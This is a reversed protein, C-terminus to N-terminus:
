NSIAKAFIYMLLPTDVDIVRDYVCVFVCVCLYLYMSVWACPRVLKKSSSPETKLLLTLNVRRSPLLHRRRQSHKHTQTHTNTHMTCACIYSCLACTYPSFAEHWVEEMAFKLYLPVFLINSSNHSSSTYMCRFERLRYVVEVHDVHGLWHPTRM